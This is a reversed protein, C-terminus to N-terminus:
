TTKLAVLDTRLRDDTFGDRRRRIDFYLLVMGLVPLPLFVLTVLDGFLSGVFLASAPVLLSAVLQALWRLVALVIIMIAVRLWDSSVLEVSRKLAERGRLGEILVVPSVFAFLLGLILGPIVFFVFGFATIFAAPVIATLLPGLRRFLLMWVERWEAAGGTVRDAVAITLAGNTLPVTVAYIFFTVLTGLIGLVFVTFSGMAAGAAAMSRRGLDQLLRAQDAQLREITAKDAHRQYAEQLAVRSSELAAAEGGPLGGAAAGAALAPGMIASFACSKVISAPVFLVACIVILARAHTKYMRWAEGLIDAVGKDPQSPASPAADAVPMAAGTKPCFATADAHLAGCHPCPMEAM